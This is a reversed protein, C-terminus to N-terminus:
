EVLMHSVVKYDISGRGQFTMEDQIGQHFSMELCPSFQSLIGKVILLISEPFGWNGYFQYVSQPTLFGFMM